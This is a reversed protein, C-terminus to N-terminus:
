ADMLTQYLTWHAEAVRRIDHHREVYARAEMGLSSCLQPAESLEMLAMAFDCADDRDVLYGRRGGLLLEDTIGELRRAVSPLGCAMAELLANPQGEARSPLVFVDACRLYDQVNERIGVFHVMEALHHKRVLGMLEQSFPHDPFAMPPPGVVVLEASRLGRARVSALADLAVDLGKRPEPLGVFVVLFAHEGLGLRRRLSQRERPSAPHFRDLDVGNPIAWLRYAPIGGALSHTIAAQSSGVVADAMKAIHAAVAGLRRRHLSAADDLGVLTVKQVLRKGAMRAALAVEPMFGFTHVIDAWNRRRAVAAVLALGTRLRLGVQGNGGPVRTVRVGDVVTEGLLTRRRTRALVEVEAGRRALHRLLLRSQQAGGGYEPSYLWNVVLVRPARGFLNDVNTRPM